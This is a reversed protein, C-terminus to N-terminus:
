VLFLLEELGKITFTPPNNKDYKRGKPNFYVQDIGANQAGCIDADFSDGIMIVESANANNLQMAYEYIVKDPKLAKASQSFVFHTFYNEIGASRLKREQVDVFGNSVLTIPYKPYLYELLEKAFPILQTKSPISQLFEVSIEEALKVNQVGVEVLPHLFREVNLFDKTVLGKGYLEWLELNRKAYLQFYHNFNVFYHGLKRQEYIEMLLSYANCHFDWLTDDLDIFIYKYAM